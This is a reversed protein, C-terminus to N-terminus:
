SVWCSHISAPSHTAHPSGIHSMSGVVVDGVVVVASGSSVVVVASGSAVVVVVSSGVVVSAGGRSGETQLYQDLALFTPAPALVTRPPVGKSTHMPANLPTSSVEVEDMKLHEPICRM